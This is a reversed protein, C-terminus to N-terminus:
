HAIRIRRNKADLAQLVRGQAQAIKIEFDRRTKDLLDIVGKHEAIEKDLQQILLDELTPAPQAAVTSTTRRHRLRVVNRRPRGAPMRQAPVPSTLSTPLTLIRAPASLTDAM